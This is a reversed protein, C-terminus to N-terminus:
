LISMTAPTTGSLIDHITGIEMCGEFLVETTTAAVVTPAEPSEQLPDQRMLQYEVGAWFTRQCVSTQFRDSMQLHLHRQTLTVLAASSNILLLPELQERLWRYSPWCVYWPASM